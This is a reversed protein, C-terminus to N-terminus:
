KTADVTTAPVPARLFLVYVSGGILSASVATWLLVSGTNVAEGTTPLVLGTLVAGVTISLIVVFGNLYQQLQTDM